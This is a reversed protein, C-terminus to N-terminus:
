GGCQAWGDTVFSKPSSKEVAKMFAQLLSSALDNNKYIM